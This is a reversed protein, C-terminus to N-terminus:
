VRLFHERETAPLRRSSTRHIGPGCRMARRPAWNCYCDGPAANPVPRHLSPAPIRLRLPSLRCNQRTISSIYPCEALVWASFERAAPVSISWPGMHRHITVVAPNYRYPSNRGVPGFNRRSPTINRRLALHRRKARPSRPGPFAACSFLALCSRPNDPLGPPHPTSSVASDFQSVVGYGLARPPPACPLRTFHTAHGTVACAASSLSPFTRVFGRPSGDGTFRIDCAQAILVV